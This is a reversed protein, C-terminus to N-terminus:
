THKSNYKQLKAEESYFHANKINADIEDKTLCRRVKGPNGLVLSDDPIVVNQTVLAGAGIICNKGIRCGNLLIAGMGILSNDGVTCGHVIAGHGVTVNDGIDTGFGTDVHVVCNDQINTNQGIRIASMDGRVVANYWISSNKGVTVDGLVVAGSAIFVSEDVSM